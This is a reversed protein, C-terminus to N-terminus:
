TVDEALQDSAESIESKNGKARREGERRNSSVLPLLHLALQLSCGFASKAADQFILFSSRM